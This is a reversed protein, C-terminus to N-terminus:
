NACQPRGGGGGEGGRGKKSDGRRGHCHCDTQMLRVRQTCLMRTPSALLKTERRLCSACGLLAIPPSTDTAMMTLDTQLSSQADDEEADM